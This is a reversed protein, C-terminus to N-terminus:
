HGFRYANKVGRQLPADIVDWNRRFDPGLHYAVSVAWATEKGVDYDVCQKGNRRGAFLPRVGRGVLAAPEDSLSKIFRHTTKRGQGWLEM